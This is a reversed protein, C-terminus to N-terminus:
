ICAMEFTRLAIIHDQVYNAEPPSISLASAISRRAERALNPTTWIRLWLMLIGVARWGFPKMKQLKWFRRSRWKEETTNEISAEFESLFLFATQIRESRLMLDPRNEM